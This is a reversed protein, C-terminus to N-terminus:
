PRDARAKRAIAVLNLSPTLGAGIQLVSEDFEFEKRKVLITSPRKKLRHLMNLFRIRQAMSFVPLTFPLTCWKMRKYRRLELDIVDRRGSMHQIDVWPFLNGLTSALSASSYEKVHWRNWPQQWSFLRASRDPTALLLIGVPSLVRHVESLYFDEDTVHELVQFSLVVDFSGDAFHLPETAMVHSFNLNARRYEARARTIIDEAVDIAEVSNATMAIRASGYGSGCGCDLVRRGRTFAEAFKYAAIHMLYIVYDEISDKRHEVLIREGTFNRDFTEMELEEQKM